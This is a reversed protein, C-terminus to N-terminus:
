KIIGLRVLTSSDEYPISITPDYLSIEPNQSLSKCYAIYEIGSDWHQKREAEQKVYSYFSSFFKFHLLAGVNLAFSVGEAFHFGPYLTINPNYKILPIKNLCPTVKFVRDRAGGLLIIMEGNPGGYTKKSYFKRDFFRCKDLFPEGMDYHTESIPQDSYMDILAAHM